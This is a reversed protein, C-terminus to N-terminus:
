CIFVHGSVKRTQFLYELLLPLALSILCRRYWLVNERAVRTLQGVYLNM